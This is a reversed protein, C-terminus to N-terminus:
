IFSKVIIADKEVPRSKKISM